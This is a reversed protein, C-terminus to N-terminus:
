SSRNIPALNWDGTGSRNAMWQPYVPTTRTAAASVTYDTGVQPIGSVTEMTLDLVLAPVTGVLQAVGFARTINYMASNTGDTLSITRNTTDTYFTLYENPINSSSLLVLSAEGTTPWAGTIITGLSTSSTGTRFSFNTSGDTPVTNNEQYNFTDTRTMNDVNDPFIGSAQWSAPMTTPNGPPTNGTTSSYRIETTGSTGSNNIDTVLNKFGENTARRLSPIDNAGFPNFRNQVM